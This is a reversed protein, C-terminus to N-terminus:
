QNSDYKPLLLAVYDVIRRQAYARADRELPQAKYKNFNVEPSCYNESNEKWERADKYFYSTKVIDSDFDTNAIIYHEYAHFVEHAISTVVEKATGNNLHEVNVKIKKKSDSYSANELSDTKESTIVIEASNPIGLHEEEILAIKRVLDIKEDSNMNDWDKLKMVTAHHKGFITDEESSSESQNFSDVYKQWDAKKMNDSLYEEGFGVVSPVFLIVAALFCWIASAKTDRYSSFKEADSIHTIKRSILRPLLLALIIIVAFIVDAAIFHEQAFLILFFMEIVCLNIVWVGWKSKKIIKNKEIYCLFWICIIFYFASVYIKNIYRDFLTIYITPFGFIAIIAFFMLKYYPATIKLIDSFFSKMKIEKEHKNRTYFITDCFQFFTFIQRYFIYFCLM